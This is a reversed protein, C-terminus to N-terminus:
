LVARRGTGGERLGRHGAGRGLFRQHQRDSDICDVRQGGAELRSAWRGRGLLRQHQRDSDVCQGCDTGRGLRLARRGKGLLDSTARMGPAVREYM